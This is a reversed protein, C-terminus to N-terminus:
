SKGFPSETIPEIQALHVRVRFLVPALVVNTADIPSVVRGLYELAIENDALLVFKLSEGANGRSRVVDIQSSAHDFVLTFGEAFSMNHDQLELRQCLKESQHDSFFLNRHYRSNYMPLCSRCEAVLQDWLLVRQALISGPPVYIEGRM